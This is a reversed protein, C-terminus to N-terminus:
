RSLHEVIRQWVRDVHVTTTQVGGIALRLVFQPGTPGPVVTHTLFLDDATNLATLLARSDTDGSRVRFCVLSTVRDGVIELAPHARVRAEFDAALDMHQRLYTRLGEAGYHRLVFWLKLSRFRRGLQIQWDRYDIVDGSETAANRLYEPTISLARLLAARDRTWFLSCDFNTLLWKHANVVLSDARDLGTFLGRHEPCLGLVGAFASDVHLWADPAEAELVDAIQAVPDVAATGTTGITACVWTPHRGAAIDSRIAEALAEPRMRYDADVDITRIQRTDEPGSALGAVMAAKVVSSHAQGSTYVTLQDLPVGARARAALLSVLTAESATGQIVGGGPGADTRFATPLGLLDVMWDMVRSEVETMAPSTQWLMGQAGLGAAVLEGLVSPGSTNSPYYAFFGPHQWHTIGPMIVRDLDALITDWDEPDEPARAPLRDAIDGPQVPPRVPLDEVREWYNAVWDVLRHGLARFTAADM